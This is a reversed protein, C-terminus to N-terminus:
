AYQESLAKRQLKEITELLQDGRRTTYIRIRLSDSPSFSQGISSLPPIEKIMSHMVLVRLLNDLEEFPVGTERALEGLNTGDMASKLIRATKQVNPHLSM